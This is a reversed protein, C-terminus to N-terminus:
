QLGLTIKYVELKSKLEAVEDHLRHFACEWRKSREFRRMWLNAIEVRIRKKEEETTALDLDLQLAEFDRRNASLLQHLHFYAEYRRNYEAM